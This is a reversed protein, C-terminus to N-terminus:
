HVESLALVEQKTTCSNLAAFMCTLIIIAILLHRM